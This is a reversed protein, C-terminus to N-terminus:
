AVGLESSRQAWDAIGAFAEKFAASDTTPNPLDGRSWREIVVALALPVSALDIRRGLQTAAAARAAM